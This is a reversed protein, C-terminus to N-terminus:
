NRRFIDDETIPVVEEGNLEAVVRDRVSEFDARYKDGIPESPQQTIKLPDIPTGNKWIRYDLHPGTSTGTSGVYGIVDGQLVYAGAKIGSAFKQLHLYGTQLGGAHKIKVTNGGGGAYSASIVTGDAVAYVPTGMPAAYDVGTHPRYDGHVPHKRSYTFKSSIRTYKVPSKLMQKKLSEGNYEWYQVKDGDTVYPIAYYEKGRHVFKAGWIRGIAVSEGEVVEDDYIVAFSDGEQIHFFDVTWQYIDEFESALSWSLGQGVIADWLSTTITAEAYKRVHERPASGIAATPEDTRIDYVVYEAKNIHYIMYDAVSKEVGEDDIYSRLFLTYDNGARFKSLSFVDKAIKDLCDIRKASIGHRNLIKGVTEGSEITFREITYGAKDIGYLLEPEKPTEEGQSASQGAETGNSANDENATNGGCAVMGMLLMFTALFDIQKMEPM